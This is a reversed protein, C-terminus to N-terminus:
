HKYDIFIIAKLKPTKNPLILHNFTLVSFTVLMKTGIELNLLFRLSYSNTDVQCFIFVKWKCRIERRVSKIEQCNFYTLLLSESFVLLFCTFYFYVTSLTIVLLRSLLKLDSLHMRLRAELYINIVCTLLKELFLVQANRCLNDLCQVYMSDFDKLCASIHSRAGQKWQLLNALSFHTKDRQSQHINIM